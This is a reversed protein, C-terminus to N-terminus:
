LTRYQVDVRRGSDASEIVADCVEAARYGDEFTAGHPAIENRGAIAGFLHEVEHVFSHEWGLMHGHPWWWQWFPDGAESVLRTTFGATGRSIELENLRELDFAM